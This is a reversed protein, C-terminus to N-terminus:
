NKPLVFWQDWEELAPRAQGQGDFLGTDKWIKLEEGFGNAELVAWVSDYDQVVFWLVFEAELQNLEPLYSAVFERQWEPSAEININFDDLIVDDAAYGTESIAFPKEPALDRFSKLWLAPLNVPNTSTNSQELLWYPYHSLALYDSYNVMEATLDLMQQLNRDFAQTQFTLMVPLEPYDSKLTKYTTDALVLFTSLEQSGIEFSANVEIGYAFYDPDFFDILRRCYQIFAKIVDPDDYEKQAWFDPLPGNSQESWYGALTKRDQKTPTTTLMMKHNPPSNFKRQDLAKQVDPPFDVEFLAENWPVGDDLHHLIMDGHSDIQDYALDLAEQTFDSPFPTFGLHFSRSTPAPQLIKSDGCALCCMFAAVYIGYKLM